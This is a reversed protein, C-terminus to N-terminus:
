SNMMGIKSQNSPTGTLMMMKSIIRQRLPQRSVCDGARIGWSILNGNLLSEHAKSSARQQPQEADRQRDNNQQRQEHVVLVASARAAAADQDFRRLSLRPM